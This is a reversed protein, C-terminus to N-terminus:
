AAVRATHSYMCLGDTVRMMMCMEYAKDSSAAIAGSAKPCAIIGVDPELVNGAQATPHVTKSAACVSQVGGFWMTEVWSTYLSQKQWAGVSLSRYVVPSVTHVELQTVVESLCSNDVHYAVKQLATSAPVVPPDDVAVVMVVLVEVLVLM